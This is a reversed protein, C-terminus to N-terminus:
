PQGQQGPLLAVVGPPGAAGGLQAPRRALGGGPGGAAGPAAPSAPLCTTPCPCEAGTPQELLQPLSPRRSAPRTVCRTCAKPSRRRVALTLRRRWCRGAGHCRQADAAQLLACNVLSLLLSLPGTWPQHSARRPTCCWRGASEARCRWLAHRCAWVCPPLAQTRPPAAGAGLRRRRRHFGQQVANSQAQASATSVLLLTFTQCWEPVGAPGGGRRWMLGQWM